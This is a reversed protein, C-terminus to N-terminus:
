DKHKNREKNIFLGDLEKAMDICPAINEGRETHQSICQRMLGTSLTDLIYKKQGWDNLNKNNDLLDRVGIYMDRPTEESNKSKVSTDDLGITKDLLKRTEYIVNASRSDDFFLGCNKQRKGLEYIKLRKKLLEKNEPYNSLHAYAFREFDRYSSLRLEQKQSSYTGNKKKEEKRIKQYTDDIKNCIEKQRDLQNIEEDLQEVKESDDEKISKWRKDYLNRLENKIHECAETIEPTILFLSFLSFLIVKKNM